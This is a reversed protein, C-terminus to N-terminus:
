LLTLFSFCNPMVWENINENLLWRSHTKEPKAVYYHPSWVTGTGLRIPLLSTLSCSPKVHVQPFSPTSPATLFLAPVDFGLKAALSSLPSIPFIWINPEWPQGWSEPQLQQTGELDSHLFCLFWYFSLSFSSTLFTQAGSQPLGPLGSNSVQSRSLTIHPKLFFTDLTLPCLTIVYPIRPRLEAVARWIIVCPGELPSDDLEAINRSLSLRPCSRHLLPEWSDSSKMQSKLLM